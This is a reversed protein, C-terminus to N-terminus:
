QNCQGCNCVHPAAPKNFAGSLALMMPLDGAGEKCVMYMVMPNSLDFGNTNGGNAMLMFPLVEKMDKNDESLMAMLGLNGFPSSADANFANGLFNVVKTVFNFGFPSKTLMIEKREGAVPDVAYVAKGDDSKGVVFMPVSMHVVVDGVAVDNIPVPMRYMFKSGDFNFVDVDMIEENKADYAVWSGAKNKVALGYVSMRVVAPNIPGFDFNFGKMTSNEENKTTTEAASLAMMDSIINNIAMLDSSSSSAKIALGGDSHVIEKLAGMTKASSEKLMEGCKLATNTISTPYLDESDIDDLFWCKIFDGFSKDGLMFRYREEGINIDVKHQDWEIFVTTDGSYLPSTMKRWKMYEMKHYCNDAVEREFDDLLDEFEWFEITTHNMM